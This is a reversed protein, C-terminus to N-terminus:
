IHILSLNLIKLSNEDFDAEFYDKGDLTLLPEQKVEDSM